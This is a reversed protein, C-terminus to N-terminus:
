RRDVDAEERRAARWARARQIVCTRCVRHKYGDSDLWMRLDDGSYEHGAPCHTVAANTAGRRNNVLATVPQLHAPKCCCRNRCLHDIQLGAPIPGVIMEYAVRHAYANRGGVTIRGYGSPSRAGTWVWCSGSRDTHRWIREALEM